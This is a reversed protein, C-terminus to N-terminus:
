GIVLALPGLLLYRASISVQEVTVQITGLGIGIDQFILAHEGQAPLSGIIGSKVTETFLTFIKGDLKVEWDTSTIEAESPNSITVTFGMGGKIDIHLPSEDIGILAVDTSSQGTSDVITLVAEYVGPQEYSHLPSPGQATTGDGFDWEFSVIDGEVDFSGQADFTIDQNPAAEYCGGADAIPPWDYSESDYVVWEIWSGTFHCGYEINFFGDYGWETGWSNKCIWYGGRGISPDDKWGVILIIHNIYNRFEEEIYPFYDTSKHDIAGWNIFARSVNIGAALPGYELIYSKIVERADPSDFGVWLEGYDVIPVLHNEWDPSKASCPISDDAQYPLCSETIVGNCSNGYVTTNIIYKYTGERRGRCSGSLPLCSLVYQESLDPDLAPNDEQINITAELAGIEAFDWCSGCNGQNKAPTTWDVGDVNKWSFEAPISDVTVLPVAPSSGQCPEIIMPEEMIPYLVFPDEVSTTTETFSMIDRQQVQNTRLSGLTVYQDTLATVGSAGIFLIGLLILMMKKVFQNNM